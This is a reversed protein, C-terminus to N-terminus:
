HSQEHHLPLLLPVLLLPLLPPPLLQLPLCLLPPRLELQQQLLELLQQLPMAEQRDCAGGSALRQGAAGKM